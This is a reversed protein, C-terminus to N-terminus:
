RRNKQERKRRRDRPWGAGEWGSVVRNGAVQKQRVTKQGETWNEAGTWRRVSDKIMDEERRTGKSKRSTKRTAKASAEHLEPELVMVGVGFGLGVMETVTEGAVALMRAPEERVKVAVTEPVESVATEQDTLEVGPPLEVRPAM